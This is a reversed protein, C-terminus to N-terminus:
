PAAECPPPTHVPTHTHPPRMSQMAPTKKPSRTLTCPKIVYCRSDVCCHIPHAAEEEPYRGVKGQGSVAEGQM